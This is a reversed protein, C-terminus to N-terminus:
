VGFFTKLMVPGAVICTGAILITRFKEWDLKQTFVGWIGYAIIAVGIFIIALSGAGMELSELLTVGEKAWNANAGAAFATQTSILTMALTQVLKNKFM